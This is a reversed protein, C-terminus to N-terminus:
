TGIVEFEKPPTYEIVERISGDPNIIYLVGDCRFTFWNWGGDIFYYYINKLRFEYYYQEPDELDLIIELPRDSILLTISQNNEGYEMLFYNKYFTRELKLKFRSFDIVNEGEENKKVLKPNVYINMNNDFRLMYYKKGEVNVLEVELEKLVKMM